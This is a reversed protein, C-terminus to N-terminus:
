EREGQPLPFPGAGFAHSPHPPTALAVNRGPSGRMRRKAGGEGVLPSPLHPAITAIVGEVNNLIDNNWFRLVKYGESELFRTRTADYAADIAHQGGDAEVILKAGHSCFDAFYRGM